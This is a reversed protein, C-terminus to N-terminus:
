MAGGHGSHQLAPMCAFPSQLTVHRRTPGAQAPRCAGASHMARHLTAGEGPGAQGLRRAVRHGSGCQEAGLHFQSAKATGAESFGARREPNTKGPSVERCSSPHWGSHAQKREREREM